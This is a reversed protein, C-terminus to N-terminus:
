PTKYRMLYSILALLLLQRAAPLFLIGYRVKSRVMVQWSSGTVAVALTQRKM